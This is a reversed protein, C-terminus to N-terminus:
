MPVFIGTTGKSPVHVDETTASAAPARRPPPPRRLPAPAPHARPPPAPAAPPAQAPARAAAPAPALCSSTCITPTVIFCDAADLHTLICPNHHIYLMVCLEHQLEFQDNRFLHLLPFVILAVSDPTHSTSCYVGAAGVPLM